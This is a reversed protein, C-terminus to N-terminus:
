TVCSRRVVIVGEEAIIDLVREGYKGRSPLHVMLPVQTARQARAAARLVKEEQPTFARSIGIEGIIGARVGSGEIGVMIEQVMIDCLEPVMAMKVEAPHSPELYWGTAAVINIGTRESVARQGQVRRGVGRGTPDVITRGGAAAFRVVESAQMEEDTLRMNDLSAFPDVRLDGLLEMTVPKDRFRSGRTVLTHAFLPGGGPPMLLM